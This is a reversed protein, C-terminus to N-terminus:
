SNAVVKVKIEKGSEQSIFTVTYGKGLALGTVSVNNVSDGNTGVVTVGDLETISAYFKSADLPTIAAGFQDKANVTAFVNSVNVAGFAGTVVGDAAKLSGADKLEFTTPVFAENVITVEKSISAETALIRVIYTAKKTKDTASGVAFAASTSYVKNSAADYKLDGVASVTYASKPLTLETGNALKATVKVEGGRTVDSAHVKAIDAVQYSDTAISNSDVVTITFNNYSAIETAPTGKKLLAIKITATGKAKASLTISDGVTAISGTSTGEPTGNVVVLADKDYAGDYVSVTVSHTALLDALNMDRDDQDKIIFHKAELKVTDGVVINTKVDKLGAVARPDNAAVVKVQLQNTNSTGTVTATLFGTGVAGATWELYAKKNTFDQKLVFTNNGNSSGLFLKDKLDSYNELKNGNQDLAEFPIKVVKGPTVTVTPQQLVITNLTAAKKVVVDLTDTKQGFLTTVRVTNTGEFVFGPAVQPKVLPIGIKDKNPGVNAKAKEKDVSFLTGNTAIAFVGYKFQDLTVKNGYQDKADVLIYFDEFTSATTLEKNDANYLSVIDVTDVVAQQGVTFTQNSTIGYTGLNLIANVFVTEGIQFSTSANATIKLVGNTASDTVNAKGVQFSLTGGSTKTVDEEFQNVVKYGVSVNSYDAANNAATGLALKDSTFKIETIKEAAATFESVQAEDSIGSVTVTSAGDLLKTSLELVAVKKDESFTTKVVDRNTGANKVVFKAKETDIAANFTVTVAKVGTQKAGAKNANALAAQAAYTVDVLLGRLAGITYDDQKAILGAKVVAAVDAAAWEAVDGEVAEGAPLVVGATKLLKVVITALQQVTVNASPDFKNNGKGELVGIESAFNIYDKAWGAGSLDTYGADKVEVGAKYGALLSVIKAAQARTMTKDLHAQGDDSGEFIGAKVLAEYKQETTLDADAAFAMSSFMSFVLAIAVLLSLSKKMVKKDGGRFVKPQQLKQTVQTFLSNSTNRM